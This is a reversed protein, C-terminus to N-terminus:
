LTSQGGASFNTKASANFEGNEIITTADTM